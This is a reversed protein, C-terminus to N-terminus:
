GGGGLWGGETLKARLADCLERAHDVEERAGQEDFRIARSYDAQERYKQLAGFLKQLRSPVVRPGPTRVATTM